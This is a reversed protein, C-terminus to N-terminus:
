SLRFPTNKSSVGTWFLSSENLKGAIFYSSLNPRHSPYLGTSNALNFDNTKDVFVLSMTDISIKDSTPDIERIMQASKIVSDDIIYIRGYEIYWLKVFHYPQAKTFEITVKRYDDVKKQAFYDLSDITFTESTILQSSSNYWKVIVELPYSESFHLTLGISSHNDDFNITITPNTSFNGDVDSIESSWFVVDTPSDPLESFSGDLLTFNEELTMYKTPEANNKLLALNGFTSNDTTTESADTLATTDFQNYEVYFKNNM